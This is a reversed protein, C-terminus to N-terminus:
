SLAPAGTGPFCTVSVGDPPLETTFAIVPAVVSTDETRSRAAAATDPVDPDLPTTAKTTVSVVGSDTVYVAVSVM